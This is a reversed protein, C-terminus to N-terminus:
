FHSCNSVMNFTVHECNYRVSVLYRTADFSVKMILKKILPVIKIRPFLNHLNRHSFKFFFFVSIYICLRWKFREINSYNFFFFSSSLSYMSSLVFFNISWYKIRITFGAYGKIVSVIRERKFSTMFLQKIGYETAIFLVHFFEIM